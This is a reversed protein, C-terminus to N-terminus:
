SWFLRLTVAGTEGLDADIVFSEVSPDLTFSDPDTDHMRVGTDGDVGKFTLPYVNDSPKVVTCCTAGEPVSVTNPGVACVLQEIM